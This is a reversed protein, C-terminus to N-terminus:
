MAFIQRFPGLKKELKNKAGCSGSSGSAFNRNGIPESRRGITRASATKFTMSTRGKM